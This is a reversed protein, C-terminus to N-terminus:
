LPEYHTKPGNLTLVPYDNETMQERSTALLTIYKHEDLFDRLVGTLGKVQECNHLIVLTSKQTPIGRLNQTLLRIVADPSSTEPSLDLTRVFPFIGQEKAELRVQRALETKGVGPLGVLFLLRNDKERLINLVNSIDQDRGIVS